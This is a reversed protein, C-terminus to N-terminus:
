QFESGSLGLRWMLGLILGKAAPLILLMLVLAVLPWLTMQLWMPPHFLKESLLLSPVVIHGVIAITLYPPFDDARIHGLPENCSACHDVVKLYNRLSAGEGCKPCRRRWGRLLTLFLSPAPAGQFIQVTM